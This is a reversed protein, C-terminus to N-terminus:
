LTQLSLQFNMNDLTHTELDPQNFGHPVTELSWDTAAPPVPMRGIILTIQLM